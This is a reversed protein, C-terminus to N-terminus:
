GGGAGRARDLVLGVATAWMTLGVAVDVMRRSGPARFLLGLVPTALALGYFWGAAALVAGVVFLLRGYAAMRAATGGLVVLTDLYVHPNLLSLTLAALVAHWRTTALGARDGGDDGASVVGTAASRLARYGYVVLLVAGAVTIVWTIRPVRVVAASVGAAGAGVLVVHCAFCVTAVAVAHQRALSQRLVFANQPGIACILAIGLALGHTLPQVSETM